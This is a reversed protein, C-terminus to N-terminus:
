DHRECNIELFPSFIAGTDVANEGRERQIRRVYRIGRRECDARLDDETCNTLNRHFILGRIEKLTGHTELKMPIEGFHNCKLLRESEAGSSTHLLLSGERLKQVGELDGFIGEVHLAIFTPKVLKFSEGDTRTAVLYRPLADAPDARHRYGDVPTAAKDWVPMSTSKSKLFPKKPTGGRPTRSRKM